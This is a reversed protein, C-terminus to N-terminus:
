YKSPSNVKMREERNLIWENMVSTNFNSLTTDSSTTMTNHEQMENSM